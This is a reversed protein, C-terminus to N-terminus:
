RKKINGIKGIFSLILFLFGSIAFVYLAIKPYGIPEYDYSNDDLNDKPVDINSNDDPIDTNPNNIKNWNATITVDSNGMTFTSANIKSSNNSLQWGAFTYGERVPNEINKTGGSTITFTQNSGNGNWTGGNPNVTLIYENSKTQLWNATITVDSNGMTFTSGNIKSSNNSLQWGTFTYGERVPNVINKTGGSTITFTQNNGNGNWTGGNPNVILTYKALEIKKWGAIITVDSNGMTFTSGNIKSSNNSLQWGTFTYGERVPNVINKTGGSTITFTQNNGNGNWTGGNPNVTLTYSKKPEDYTNTGKTMVLVESLTLPNSFEIKIKKIHGNVKDYPLNFEYYSANGLNVNRIIYEDNIYITAITNNFSTGNGYIWVNSVDRRKNLDITVSSTTSTKVNTGKALYTAIDSLASSNSGASLTYNSSNLQYYGLTGSPYPQNITSPGNVFMNGSSDFGIRDLNVKRNTFNNGSFVASHYFIYMENNSIKFIHNHGPGYIYKSSDYFGNIPDSGDLWPTSINIKKYNSIPNNSTAIGVGYTSDAYSGASYMLYYKGNNKIVFPGENINKEWTGSSLCLLKNSSSVSYKKTYDSNLEVGYICQDGDAKFYFYIKGNDFFLSGDIYNKNVFNRNTSTDHSILNLNEIGVDLKRISTFKNNLNNTEAIYVAGNSNETWPYSTGWLVGTFVLIYKGNQYYVEPAWVYNINLGSTDVFSGLRTFSKFDKTTYHSNNTTYIHYTDGSKIIYPDGDDGYSPISLNNFSASSSTLSLDQYAYANSCFSCFTLFLILCVRKKM